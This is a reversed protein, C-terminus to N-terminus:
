VELTINEMKRLMVLRINKNNRFTNLWKIKNTIISPSLGMNIINHIISPSQGM